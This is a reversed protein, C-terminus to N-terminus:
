ERDKQAEEEQEQALKETRTQLMRERSKKAEVVKTKRSLANLNEIQDYREM